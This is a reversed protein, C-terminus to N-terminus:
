IFWLSGLVIVCISTAWIDCIKFHPTNLSTRGEGGNYCRAEMATALEDARRFSSIFLPILIPILAKAREILGGSTFNAGRVQQAKMIKETEELIVPIMRLAITMMMAVEHSPFKLYKLPKMLSELGATLQLPSTTYTLISSAMILLVIRCLMYAGLIAGEKTAKLFWWSWVVEGPTLFLNLIATFAILILMPKLSKLYMSLPVKSLWAIIVIFAFLIAYDLTTKAMFTVFVIAFVLIIKLRPDLKHLVSGTPFYQGLTIDKLM